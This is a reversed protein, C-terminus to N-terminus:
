VNGEETLQFSTEVNNQNGSQVATPEVKVSNVATTLFIFYKQLTDVFNEPKELAVAVPPFRESFMMGRSFFLCITNWARGPSDIEGIYSVFDFVQFSKSLQFLLKRAEEELTILCHKKATKVRESYATCVNPGEVYLAPHWMQFLKRKALNNVSFGSSLGIATGFLLSLHLKLPVDNQKVKAHEFLGVSIPYMDFAMQLLEQVLTHMNYLDNIGSVVYNFRDIYWFPEHRHNRECHNMLKDKVSVPIINWKENEEKREESPNFLLDPGGLLWAMKDIKKKCIFCTNEYNFASEEVGKLTIESRPPYYPLDVLRRFERTDKGIITSFTPHVEHYAVKRGFDPPSHDPHDLQFAVSKAKAQKDEAEVLEKMLSKSKNYDTMVWLASWDEFHQTVNNETQSFVGRRLDTETWTDTTRPGFVIGGRTFDVIKKKMEVSTMNDKHYIEAGITLLRAKKNKGRHPVVTGRADERETTEFLKYRLAVAPALPLAKESVLDLMTKQGKESNAGCKGGKEVKERSKHVELSAAPKPDEPNALEKGSRLTTPVASPLNIEYYNKGLNKLFKKIQKKGEVSTRADDLIDCVNVFSNTKSKEDFVVFSINKSSANFPMARKWTKNNKFLLNFQNTILFPKLLDSNADACSDSMINDNRATSDTRLIANGNGDLKNYATM